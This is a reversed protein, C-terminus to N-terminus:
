VLIPESYWPVAVFCCKGLCVICHHWSLSFMNLYDWNLLAASSLILGEKILSSLTGRSPSFCTQLCDCSRSLVFFRFRSSLALVILSSQCLSQPAHPRGSSLSFVHVPVAVSVWLCTWPESGIFESVGGEAWESASERSQIDGCHAEAVASQALIENELGRGGM